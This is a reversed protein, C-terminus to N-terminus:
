YTLRGVSVRANRRVHSGGPRQACRACAPAGERGPFCARKQLTYACRCVRRSRAPWTNAICSKLWQCCNHPPWANQWESTARMVQVNEAHVHVCRGFARMQGLSVQMRFSHQHGIVLENVVTYTPPTLALQQCLVNLKAMANDKEDIGDTPSGQQKAQPPTSVAVSVLRQESFVLSRLYTRVRVCMFQLTADITAGPLQWKAYAGRTVIAKM